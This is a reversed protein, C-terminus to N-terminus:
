ASPPTLACRLFASISPLIPKAATSGPSQVQLGNGAEGAPRPVPTPRAAPDRGPGPGPERREGIHLRKSLRYYVGPSVDKFNGQTDRWRRAARRRPQAGFTGKASDWELTRRPTTPLWGDPRRFRLETTMSVLAAQGNGCAGRFGACLALTAAVAMVLSRSKMVVIRQVGRVSGPGRAVGQRSIWMPIFHRLPRCDVTQTVIKPCRGGNASGQQGSTVRISAPAGSGEPSRAAAFPISAPEGPRAFCMGIQRSPFLFAVDMLLGAGRPSMPRPRNPNAPCRRGERRPRVSGTRRREGHCMRCLVHRAGSAM